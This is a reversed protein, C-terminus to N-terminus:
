RAHSRHPDPSDDIAAETFQWPYGAVSSTHRHGDAQIAFETCKFYLFLKTKMLQHQLQTKLRVPNRNFTVAVDSRAASPRLDQQEIPIPHFQNVENPAAGRDSHVLSAGM